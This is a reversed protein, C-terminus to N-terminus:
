LSGLEVFHFLQVSNFSPPAAHALEPAEEAKQSTQQNYHQRGVDAQHGNLLNCAIVFDRSVHTIPTIRCIQSGIVFVFSDLPHQLFERFLAIPQVQVVWNKDSVLNLILIPVSYSDRASYVSPLDQDRTEHIALVVLYLVDDAGFKFCDIDVLFKNPNASFPIVM